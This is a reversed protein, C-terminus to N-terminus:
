FSGMIWNSRNNAANNGKIIYVQNAWMGGERDAGCETSNGYMDFTPPATAGAFCQGGDQVAFM